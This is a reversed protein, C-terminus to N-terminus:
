DARHEGNGPLTGSRKRLVAGITEIVSDWAMPKSIYDDMGVELFRERDGRQSHATMAIIPVEPDLIGHERARIRRTTEVGDLEPMRVDMLVLDYRARALHELAEHGNSATTVSHGERKLILQAFAQNVLNDEALLIRLPPLTTRDPAGTLGSGQSRTRGAATGSADGRAATASASPADGAAVEGAHATEPLHMWVSFTFASGQGPQSRAWIDGGMMKVLHRSIALGLGTGEFERSLSGDVQYFSDFVRPLKEEPIGVGTDTVTCTLQVRAPVGPQQKRQGSRIKVTVSGTKTFKIANETLNRLVQRLRTPDGLLHVPAHPDLDVHFALGKNRADERHPALAERVLTPFEFPREELVLEGTEVKSIDLLDNVINLMSIASQRVMHLLPQVEAQRGPSAQALSAPSLAEENMTRIVVDTMGLIGHLPTRLEHSLRALFDAAAPTSWDARRPAAVPLGPASELRSAAGTPTEAEGAPSRELDDM